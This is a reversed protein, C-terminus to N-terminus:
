RDLKAQFRDYYWTLQASLMYEDDIQAYQIYRSSLNFFVNSNIKYRTNLDLGLSSNNGYLKKINNALVFGLRTKLSSNVSYEAFLYLSESKDEALEIYDIDVGLSVGPIYDFKVGTNGGYGVYQNSKKSTRKVGVYIQLYDNVQYHVSSKFLDQRGFVYNAYFRERFTVFTNKPQFLEYSTRIRIQETIDLMSNVMFDKFTKTEFEYTAMISVEYANVPHGFLNGTLNSAFSFRSSLHRDYYQNFSSRLYVKDVMLYDNKWNITKQWLGDVGYIWDGKVSRVDELRRPVGGYIVWIMGNDTPQFRYSGGDIVYYGVSDMRSYRGIKLKSHLVDISREVYLQYIEGEFGYEESKRSVFDVGAHWNKYDFVEFSGWVESFIRADQTYRNDAQVKTKLVGSWNWAVCLPSQILIGLLCLVRIIQKNEM